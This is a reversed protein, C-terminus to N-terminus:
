RTIRVYGTNSGSTVRAVYNGKALASINIHGTNTFSAVERGAMDFLVVTINQWDAPVKITVYGDSAPNPYAELKTVSPNINAVKLDRLTDLYAVSTIVEVGTNGNTTIQLIPYHVGKALWKYTITTVPLGLTISDITVSDVEVQKSRLRICNTPTTIYPTVITGWGDVVTTRTGQESLSFTGPIAITLQYPSTYTNGYALPLSYLVDPTTYSAPLPFSDITAGLAIIQFQDPNSKLKYFSYIDQISVPLFSGLLPISDAVKDGFTGSPLAFGYILSIQAASTYADTSQSSPSLYSFDWAHSAGSDSLASYSSLSVISANSRVFTEGAAPMDSNDVSIQAFAAASVFLLNVVLLLKKM